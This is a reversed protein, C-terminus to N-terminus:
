PTDIKLSVYNRTEVLSYIFVIADCRIADSVRNPAVLVEAIRQMTFPPEESDKEHGAAQSITPLLMAMLRQRRQQFVYESSFLSSLKDSKMTPDADNCDDTNNNNSNRNLTEAFRENRRNEAPSLKYGNDRNQYFHDLVLGLAGRFATQLTKYPSVPIANTGDMSNTEDEGDCVTATDTWTDLGSNIHAGQTNAAGSRKARTTKRASSIESNSTASTGESDCEYQASDYDPESGTSRGSGVSSPASSFLGGHLLASSSLAAHPLNSNNLKSSTSSMNTNTMNSNNNSNNNTNSNNNSSNNNGSTTTSTSVTTGSSNTRVFVLPRKRSNSSVNNTRGFGGDPSGFRMREGGSKHVVGNRHRKRPPLGTATSRRAATSTNTITSTGGSNFSPQKRVVGGGSGATTNSSSSSSSSGKNNAFSPSYQSSHSSSSSSAVKALSASKSNSNSVSASTPDTESGGNSSTSAAAEMGGGKRKSTSSNLLLSKTSTAEQNWSLWSCKGTKAVEMIIRRLERPLPGEGFRQPQQQQQKGASSTTTTAVTRRPIAPPADADNNNNAAAAAARLSSSSLSVIKTTTANYDNNSGVDDITKDSRIKESLPQSSQMQEQDQEHQQRSHNNDNDNDSDNSNSNSSNGILSTTESRRDVTDPGGSEVEVDFSVTSNNNNNSNGGGGVRSSAAGIPDGEDSSSSSRAVAATTSSTPSTTTASTSAVIASAM